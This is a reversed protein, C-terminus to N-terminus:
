THTVVDSYIVVEAYEETSEGPASTPNSQLYAGAKFYNSTSTSSVTYPVVKGNYLFSVVGGSVDFGIEYDKGLAFNQDLLYGHPNDGNTIWLKDAEVRFVTVDDTASHIQGIVVHPRVKTLRNVRGRVVLRHRGSVCSWAAHAKGDPTQERLESRPNKSGSTTAGGHWVRFVAGTHDDTLLFYRSAYTALTPQEIEMAWGDVPDKVPVTLYWGKGVLDAPYNVTGPKPDPAPAPAPLDLPASLPSTGTASVHQLAYRRQTGPKLASRVSTTGTVTAQVPNDKNLLDLIQTGTVKDAANPPDWDLRPRKDAQMAVRLGTPAAPVLPGPAPAPTPVPAPTIGLRAEIAAVRAALEPLTLDPV